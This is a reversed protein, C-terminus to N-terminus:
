DRRPTTNTGNEDADVGVPLAPGGKKLDAGHEHAREYRMWSERPREPHASAVQRMKIPEGIGRCPM